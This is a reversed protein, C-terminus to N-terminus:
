SMYRITIYQAQEIALGETLVSAAGSLNGQYIESEMLKLRIDALTPVTKCRDAIKVHASSCIYFRRLHWEM